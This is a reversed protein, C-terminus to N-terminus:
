SVACLCAYPGMTGNAPRFARWTPVNYSSYCTATESSRQRAPRSSIFESAQIAATACVAFREIMNLGGSLVGTHAAVATQGPRGRHSM